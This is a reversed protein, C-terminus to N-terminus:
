IFLNDHVRKIWDLFEQYTLDSKARNCLKCCTIVNNISHDGDPDIRDLGNYSYSEKSRKDYRVCSQTIGCYHCPRQSLILFDEYTCGNQYRHKWINFSLPQHTEVGAMFGGSASRKVSIRKGLLCGCSKIVGRSVESVSKIVTNGCDCQFKWLYLTGWQRERKGASELATLKNFRQGKIITIPKAM